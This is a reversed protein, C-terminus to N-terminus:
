NAKGAQKLRAIEAELLAKLEEPTVGRDRAIEELTRRDRQDASLGIALRLQEVDVNHSKSVYGLRMWPKIPEDAHNSWYIVGVTLRVALFLTITCALLFAVTLPRNSQWAQRLVHM